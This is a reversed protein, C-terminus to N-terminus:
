VKGKIRVKYHQTNFLTANLVMKQTKPIVRGPISSQNKRVVLFLIVQFLICIIPCPVVIGKWFCIFCFHWRYLLVCRNVHRLIWGVITIDTGVALLSFLIIFNTFVFVQFFFNLFLHPLLQPLGPYQWSLSLNFVNILYKAIGTFICYLFNCKTSSSMSYFWHSLYSGGLLLQVFYISYILDSVEKESPRPYIGRLPNCSVLLPKGLWSPSYFVSVAVRCLSYVGM